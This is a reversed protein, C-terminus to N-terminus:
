MTETVDVQRVVDIVTGDRYEVVAVIPRSAADRRVPARTAKKESLKRLEDIAVLPLGAAELCARLDGRRPNVAIGEETVVADVTEGPTTLCEVSEVVKANHGSNLQTTVLALKAGAATDAHGGSGGIIHGGGVATVNVNFELDIEAAGLVMVDLMNVSPGKSAPNAYLSASMSMHAPNGRYSEVARLDFCQVDFLTRFLGADFMDVITGTIGGAAFAGVIGKTQMIKALSAATALSVGGAGTQFSFGEKLLGSAEIVQAAMAAIRLGEPKETLRTTGSVIQTPDGISDLAVVFDVYQQSIDIPCLPFPVLNDTLAVVRDAFQADVMPYGLTGCASKGDVGNINGYTDASPAAVFAVDIHLDGSEIARARGGHTQMIAPTALMGRSVAAAVAGSMYATSIGTVVGNRMYEVLPEHVPFLSTAAVRIDRLGLAAVEAMVARLVDDGNRLHHHFSVTAGDKLGCAQIAARISPLVKTDGPRVCSVKTATRTAPRLNAWAGSFPVATGYGEIHSPVRDSM